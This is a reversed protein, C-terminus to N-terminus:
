NNEADTPPKPRDFLFPTSSPGLKNLLDASARRVAGRHAAETEKKCADVSEELANITRRFSEIEEDGYGMKRAVENDNATMNILWTRATYVIQDETMADFAQNFERNEIEEELDEIGEDSMRFYESDLEGTVGYRDWDYARFAKMQQLHQEDTLECVREDYDPSGPIVVFNYKALIESDKWNTESM